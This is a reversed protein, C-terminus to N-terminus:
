GIFFVVNPVQKICTSTRNERAVALFFFSSCSTSWVAKVARM